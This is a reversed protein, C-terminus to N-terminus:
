FGPRTKRSEPRRRFSLSDRQFGGLLIFPQVRCQRLGASSGPSAPISDRRGAAPLDPVLASTTSRLRSRAAEPAQRYLRPVRKFDPGRKGPNRGAGSHRCLAFRTQRWGSLGKAIGAWNGVRAGATMGACAPIWHNSYDMGAGRAHGGCAPRAIRRRYFGATVSRGAGNGPNWSESSHRRPSLRM